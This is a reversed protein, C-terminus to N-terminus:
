SPPATTALEPIADGADGADVCETLAAQTAEGRKNRNVRYIWDYTGDRVVFHTTADDVEVLRGGFEGGSCPISAM